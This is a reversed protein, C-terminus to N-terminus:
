CAGAALQANEEDWTQKCCTEPHYREAALYAIIGCARILAEHPFM